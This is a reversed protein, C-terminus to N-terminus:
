FSPTLISLPMASDMFLSPKFVVTEFTSTSNTNIYPPHFTHTYQIFFANLKYKSILLSIILVFSSMGDAYIM